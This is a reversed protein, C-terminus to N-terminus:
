QVQPGQRRHFVAPHHRHPAGSPSPGVWPGGTYVVSASGTIGGGGCWTALLRGVLIIFPIRHGGTM